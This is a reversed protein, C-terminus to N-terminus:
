SRLFNIAWFSVLALTGAGAYIYVRVEFPNETLFPYPFSGNFSACYEAWWSYWLTAAGAVIPAGVLAQKKTYKREFLVFDALLSLAPTAHLALDMRLPIRLLLPAEGTSSAISPDTQLILSPFFLMLTWYITSIVVALPMAIMFLGRKITRLATLSPFVDGAMSTVMTLWAVCLGQITLYQFHGGKQSEIFSNIPLYHLSNFGYAMIAAATGRFLLRIVSMVPELRSPNPLLVRL